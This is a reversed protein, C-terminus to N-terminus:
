VSFYTRIISIKNLIFIINMFVHEQCFLYYFYTNSSFVDTPTNAFLHARNKSKYFCEIHECLYKCQEILIPKKQM